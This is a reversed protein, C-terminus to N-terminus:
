PRGTTAVDPASAAADQGRAVPEASESRVVMGDVPAAVRSTVLREGDQIGGTAYVAHEGRWAVEITRIRLRSQADVVFVQDGERLALRPIEIASELPPADIEVNVYSNLLLPVLADHAAAEADTKGKAALKQASRARIGLPDDITVLVRAMAGTDDLNPLVREVYGQREVKRGGLQFWVLARSGRGKEGASPTRIYQLSELPVSVQVWYADTGVLTALQTQPTLLQGVDVHEEIVVANFPARVTARALDLKARELASEASDVGVQATRLQPGRLALQEEPDGGGADGRHLGSFMQWEREAVDKRGRELSVELQARSVEAKRAEVALEYDRPDIQVLVDGQRVFGGPELQPSQAIVRGSIESQVIVRKAPLVSGHARIAVEQRAARVTQTEVLLGEDRREQRKAQPRTSVMHMVVLVGAALTVVVLLPQVLKRMKSM